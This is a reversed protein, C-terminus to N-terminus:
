KLEYKLCDYCKGTGINGFALRSLQSPRQPANPRRPTQSQSMAVHDSGLTSSPFAARRNPDSNENM